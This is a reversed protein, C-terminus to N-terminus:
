NSVPDFEQVTEGSPAFVDIESLQNLLDICNHVIYGNQVQYNHYSDVEFNYTPEPSSVWIRKVLEPKGKRGTAEIEQANKEVSLKALNAKSLVDVSWVYERQLHILQEKCKLVEVSTVATDLGELALNIYQEVSKASKLNQMHKIGNTEVHIAVSNLMKELDKILLSAKEVSNVNYLGTLYSKGKISGQTPEQKEKKLWNKFKMSTRKWTDQLDRAMLGIRGRMSLNISKELCYNWTQYTTTARIMTKITSMTGKLSLGKLERMYTSIYGTKEQGMQVDQQVKTTAGLSKLGSSDMTNYLQQRWETNRLITDGVAIDRVLKYKNDVLIPHLETFQLVDGSEMEINVIPKIGTMRVNSVKSIVSGRASCAIVEDGNELEGLLKSGTPTDVATNYTGCDDHKLAKVGAALTLKSLESELEDVLEKLKVNTSSVSAFKPLWVKGQKFRASVGTIFRQLKDSTPRIGEQNTGIKKALPFFVNRVVMEKRVWDLFGGQQGSIEIGVSMPRYKQAYRFLDDINKPMEQRKCQGDVLMWDSNSNIAWVGITSYDASAKQSTAFDTTIYFNYKSKMGLVTSPDFWKIDEPAVILTSLDTLELMYEQYFSQLQGSAKYTNYKEQVAEYPFRDPWNGEFEEVKCPYKECLPFRHVDWEGSESLQHLLDRESIPTGIYFLKFRTPHLAPVIAKYFNDNITQQIIESTMAENTTVDDLIVLDPRYGKYRVGRVNTRMGYTKIYLEDGAVNVLEIENDTRRTLNIYQQLFDSREVKTAINRSFNKCGNEASDGVFAIFNVRGFNHLSGRVAIYIVLWEMLTSKASGRFSEIVVKRADSFYRDALKYHIQPSTNDEVGTARIFAIFELAEKSPIYGDKVSEGM